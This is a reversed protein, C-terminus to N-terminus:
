VAVVYFLHWQWIVVPITRGTLQRIVGQIKVPIAFRPKLCPLIGHVSRRSVIAAASAEPWQEQPAYLSVSHSASSSPAQRGLGQARGYANDLFHPIFIISSHMPKSALPVHLPHTNPVQPPVTTIGVSSDFQFGYRGSAECKLSAAIGSERTPLDVLELISRRSKIVVLFYPVHRTQEAYRYLSNPVVRRLLPRLSSTQM